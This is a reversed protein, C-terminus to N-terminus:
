RRDNACVVGAGRQQLCVDLEFGVAEKGPDVVSIEADVRQGAGLWRANPNRLYEAPKLDRAGVQGGFRDQLTLRLLPYPQAHDAKNFLSVRVRLTGGAQADAMAGWQRLEYAQLDWNPELAVGFYKYIRVLADGMYPNRVLAERNFHVLQAVIALTLLASGVAWAVSRRRRSRPALVPPLPVEAASGGDTFAVRTGSPLYFEGSQEPQVAALVDVVEAEKGRETEAVGPEAAEVQMSEARLDDPTPEEIVLEEGDIAIREGEMTIEISPTSEIEVDLLEHEATDELPDSAIDQATEIDFDTRAHSRGAEPEAEESNALADFVTDCEGCRVRGAAARLQTPTARFVTRCQPCQALM